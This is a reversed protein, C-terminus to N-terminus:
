AAQVPLLWVCVADHLRCLFCGCACLMMCGACSAAGADVTTAAAAPLTHVPTPLCRESALNAVDVGGHGDYVAM